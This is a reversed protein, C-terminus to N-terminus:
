PSGRGTRDGTRPTEPSPPRATAPPRGSGSGTPSGPRAAAARNVADASWDANADSAAVPDGDASAAWRYKWWTGRASIWALRLGNRGDLFGRRLLYGRVFTWGGHGLASWFGGGGRERLSAAGLAAYHRAKALADDISDVSDHHLSGSLSGTAGDVIVREHVRDDSFRGAARRFLRLVRDNGWLGHAMVQGCFSSRRPLWYGALGGPGDAVVVARIEAALAETLREDADISLVWAGRCAALARNKQPGFGPWDPTVLVEAGSARAIAVTDDTSGSDVVVVQDAFRVSALCDAIRHAENKTIIAVSLRPAPNAANV